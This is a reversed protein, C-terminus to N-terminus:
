SVRLRHQLDMTVAGNQALARGAVDVDTTLTISALALISGVFSTRTGPTASSGIQWFVNCARAGNVLLVSADSATTFTSGIQFVWVADSDGGADLTLAGTLQASSSFCLLGWARADNRRPGSWDFQLRVGSRGSNNYATTTDTQAQAAVADGAHIMGGVVVGPPFGTIATGPSM